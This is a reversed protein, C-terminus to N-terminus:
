LGKSELDETGITSPGDAHLEQIGVSLITM